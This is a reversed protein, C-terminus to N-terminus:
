LNLSKTIIHSLKSKKLQGLPNTVPLLFELLNQYLFDWKKVGVGKSREWCRPACLLKKDISFSRRKVLEMVAFSILCDTEEARWFKTWETARIERMTTMCECILFSGRVGRWKKTYVNRDRPSVGLFCLIEVSVYLAWEVDFYCVARIQHQWNTQGSNYHVRRPREWIFCGDGSHAAATPIRIKIIHLINNHTIFKHPLSHQQQAARKRHM